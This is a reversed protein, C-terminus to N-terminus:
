WNIAFDVWPVFPWGEINDPGIVYVLGFGVAVRDGFWRLGFLAPVNSEQPLKWVEAMLKSRSAIRTEGGVVFLPERAVQRTTFPYGALLTVAHDDSGLTTVLYGMGLSADSEDPVTAWFGGVAVAADPSDYVGVKGAVYFLQSSLGPIISMGGSLMVRDTVGFAAVPLFLYYDAFYGSGRPLTRGTPSFFLRSTNPDSRRFGTSTVRGALARWSAISGLPLLVRAAAFTLLTLSTDDVAIVRGTLESGDTLRLSVVKTSDAPPVAPRQAALPCVAALALLVVSSVRM